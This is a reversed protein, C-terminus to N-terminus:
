HEKYQMAFISFAIFALGFCLSFIFSELRTFAYDDHISYTRNANLYWQMQGYAIAANAVLIIGAAFLILSPLLISQKM